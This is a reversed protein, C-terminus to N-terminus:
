VDAATKDALGARRYDDHRESLDGTGSHGMGIFALRSATGAGAPRGTGLHESVSEAILADVTVGRRTAEARLADLLEAPLDINVTM